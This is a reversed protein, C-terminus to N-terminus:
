LLEKYTKIINKGPLYLQAFYVFKTSGNNDTNCIVKVNKNLGMSLLYSGSFGIQIVEDAHKVLNYEYLFKNIDPEHMLHEQTLDILKNKDLQHIIQYYISYVLHKYSNYETNKNYDISRDGMLIVKGDFSNLYAILSSIYQDNLSRDYERIKVNLVVYKEYPKVFEKDLIFSLDKPKFEVDLLKPYDHTDLSGTGLSEDTLEFRSDQFVRKALSETFNHLSPSYQNNNRYHYLTAYDVKIRVKEFRNFLESGYVYCNIIDGIGPNTQLHPINTKFIQKKIIEIINM